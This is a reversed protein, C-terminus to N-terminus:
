AKHAVINVLGQRVASIRYLKGVAGKSFLTDGSFQAVALGIACIASWRM